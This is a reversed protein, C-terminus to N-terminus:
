ILYRGSRMLVKGDVELDGGSGNASLIANAVWTAGTVKPNTWGFVLHLGPVCQDFVPEGIPSALGPNTGLAVQGVRDLDPTGRLHQDVAQALEPDDCTVARCAGEDIEFRVPATELSPPQGKFGIDLSANAVYVGKVNAPSTFLQGAPLNEWRGPRIIGVHEGWRADPNLTVELDTGYATRYRLTSKGTIRVRVQRTMDVIRAPEVNFGAILARRTVGIVHAHRLKLSEVLGVFERRLPLERPDDVGILMVSAQARGMADRLPEPVGGLPREGFSELMFAEVKASTTQVADVISQGIAERARDYVVVVNEGPVVSIAEVIRRAAGMLAFDITKKFTARKSSPGDTV